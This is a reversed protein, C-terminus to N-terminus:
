SVTIATQPYLQKRINNIVVFTTVATKKQKNTQKTKTKTKTQKNKKQKQKQQFSLSKRNGEHVLLGINPFLYNEHSFSAAATNQSCM